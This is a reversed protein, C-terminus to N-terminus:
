GDQFEVGPQFTTKYTKLATITTITWKDGECEFILDPKQKELISRLMMGTDITKLYQSFNESSNFAWKTNEFSM